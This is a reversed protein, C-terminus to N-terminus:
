ASACSIVLRGSAYPQPGGTFELVTTHQTLDVSFSVGSQNQSGSLISIVSGGSTCLFVTVSVSSSDQARLSLLGDQTVGTQSNVDVRVLRSTYDTGNVTIEFVLYAHTCPSDRDFRGTDPNYYKGNYDQINYLTGDDSHVILDQVGFTVEYADGTAPRNSNDNLIYYVGAAMLIAAVILAVIPILRGGSPKPAIGSRLPAGCEPCYDAGERTEAGCRGCFGM